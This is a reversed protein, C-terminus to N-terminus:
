FHLANHAEQEILTQNYRQPNCAHLQNYHTVLNFFCSEEDNSFDAVHEDTYIRDIAMIAATRADENEITSRIASLIDSRTIISTM